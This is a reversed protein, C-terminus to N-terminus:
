VNLSRAYEKFFYGLLNICTMLLSETYIFNHIPLYSERYKDHTKQCISCNPKDLSGSVHVQQLHIFWMLINHWCSRCWLKTIRLVWIGLVITIKSINGCSSFPSLLSLKSIKVAERSSGWIVKIVKSYLPLPHCINLDFITPRSQNGTLLLNKIGKYDSTCTQPRQMWTSCEHSGNNLTPYLRISFAFM